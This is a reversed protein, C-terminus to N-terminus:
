RGEAKRRTLTRPPIQVLRGIEEMPLGTSKQLSDLLKYPLGANIKAIVGPVTDRNMGLADDEVDVVPGRRTKGRDRPPSPRSTIAPTLLTKPQSGKLAAPPKRKSTFM